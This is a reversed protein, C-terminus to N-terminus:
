KAPHMRWCGATMLGHLKGAGVASGSTYRVFGCTHPASPKSHMQSLGRSMISFSSAIYPAADAAALLLMICLVLVLWHAQSSWGMGSGLDTRAM